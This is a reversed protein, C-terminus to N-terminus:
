RPPQEENPETAAAPLVPVSDPRELAGTDKLREILPQNFAPPRVGSRMMKNIVQALDVLRVAIGQRREENDGVLRVTAEADNLRDSALQLETYLAIPHSAELWATQIDEYKSSVPGGAAAALGDGFRVVPGEHGAAWKWALHTNILNEHPPIPVEDASGVPLALLLPPVALAYGLIMLEDVTVDRRRKGTDKHKRGTEINTIAAYSLDPYGLSACREALQERTLGLRERHKRVESAVVDSM